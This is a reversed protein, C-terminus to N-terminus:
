QETNVEAAAGVSSLLNSPMLLFLNNRIQDNKTCTQQSQLNEINFLCVVHVTEAVM